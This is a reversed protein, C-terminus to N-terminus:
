LRICQGEVVAPATLGRLFLPRNVVNGNVGYRKALDETLEYAVYGRAKFAEAQLELGRRLENDVLPERKPRGNWPAIWSWGESRALRAIQDVLRERHADEGHWFANISFKCFVGDFAEPFSAADLARLNGERVEFGKHLGLELVAPDNDIGVVRRAGREVALVGFDFQGPGLDLLDADEFLVDGLFDSFIREFHVRSRDPDRVGAQRAGEIIRREAPDTLM